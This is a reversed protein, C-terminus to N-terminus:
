EVSHLKQIRQLHRGGEFQTTFFTKVIDLALEKGIKEASLCLINADNHQRARQADFVDSCLAARIRHIKNAAICMGIGTGCILVGYDYEGEAVARGVDQAIDPYDVPDTSYCGYDHYDTGSGQLYGIIHSKLEFGRHDSGIAVRMNVREKYM